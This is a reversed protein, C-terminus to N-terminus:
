AQSGNPHITVPHGDRWAVGAVFADFEALRILNTETGFNFPLGTYTDAAASVEPDVSVATVSVNGRHLM